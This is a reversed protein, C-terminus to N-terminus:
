CSSKSQSDPQSIYFASIYVILIVAPVVHFPHPTAQGQIEYLESYSEGVFTTIYLILQILWGPDATRMNLVLMFHM